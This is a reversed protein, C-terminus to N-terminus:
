EATLTRGDPWALAVVCRFRAGRAPEPVDRLMVLLKAVREPDTAAFRASRIGPAGDLADVELGSDDGLAPLGTAAAVAAAKAVANEAYSTDREEPCAAGPFDALSLVEAPGWELVLARLEALKGANGTAVVLRPPIM